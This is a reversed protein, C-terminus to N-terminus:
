RASPGGPHAPRVTVIHTGAHTSPHDTRQTRLATLASPRNVPPLLGAAPTLPGQKSIIPTVEVPRISQDVSADENSRRRATPNTAKIRRVVWDRTLRRGVRRDSLINRQEM